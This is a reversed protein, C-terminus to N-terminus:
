SDEPNLVSQPFRPYVFAWPDFKIVLQKRHFNPLGDPGIKQRCYITVRHRDNAFFSDLLRIFDPSNLAHHVLVNSNPMRQIVNSNGRKVYSWETYDYELLVCKVTEEPNVHAYAIRDFLKNYDLQSMLWIMTKASNKNQHMLLDVINNLSMKNGTEILCQDFDTKQTDFIYKKFGLQHVGITYLIVCGFLSIQISIGEKSFPFGMRRMRIGGLGWGTSSSSENEYLLVSDLFIQVHNSSNSGSHTVFM